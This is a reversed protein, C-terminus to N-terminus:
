EGKRAAHKRINSAERESARESQTYAAEDVGSDGDEEEDDDGRHRSSVGEKSGGARAFM